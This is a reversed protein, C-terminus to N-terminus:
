RVRVPLANGRRRTFLAEAVGNRDVARVLMLYRGRPLGAARFRWRTTGSAKQWVGLTCRGDADAPRKRLRGHRGSLWACTRARAVRADPLGSGLRLLGVDVERTGAAAQGSASVGGDPGAQAVGTARPDVITARLEISNNSSDPDPLGGQASASNTVAGAGTFRGRVSVVSGDRLGSCHLRGAPRACTGAGASASDVAFRAPLFDDLEINGADDPGGDIVSIEYEIVDGVAATNAVRFQRGNWVTMLKFIRV